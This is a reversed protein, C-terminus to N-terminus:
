KEVVWTKCRNVNLTIGFHVFSSRSYFILKDYSILGDKLRCYEKYTCNFDAALGKLHQSCAVGGVASNVLSSRYGSNIVVPRKLISRVSELANALTVLRFIINGDPFSQKSLHSTNVMEGLSFHASLRIQSLVQLDEKTM